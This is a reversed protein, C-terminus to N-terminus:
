RILMTAVLDPLIVMLKGRSSLVFGTGVVCLLVGGVLEGEGLM